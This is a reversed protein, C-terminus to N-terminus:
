WADVRLGPVRRFEDTNRTVLTADNSLAISAVFLDNAGIPTGLRALFARVSGYYEAARDDFPLSQFAAFFVELLRLNADLRESKRAGYLLEARVVSCLAVNSPVERSLRTSLPRDGRKLLAVCINTDLLYSM